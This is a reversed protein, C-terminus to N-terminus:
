QVPQFSVCLQETEAEELPEDMLTCIYVSGDKLYYGDKQFYKCNPCTGFLHKDQQQALKCLMRELGLVVTRNESKSLEGAVAVLVEFPDDSLIKKSKHTLNFHVSRGDTKSRKRTLYGSKALSKITQSATGRTTAHFEAFASLTRSFRNARSFYRLATWQAPTLGNAFSDGYTMRGLQAVLEAVTRKSM